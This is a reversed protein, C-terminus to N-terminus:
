HLLISLIVTGGRQYSHFRLKMKAENFCFCVSENARKFSPSGYVASRRPKLHVVRKM